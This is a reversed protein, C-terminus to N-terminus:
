QLVLYGGRPHLIPVSAPRAASPAVHRATCPVFSLVRRRRFLLVVPPSVVGVKFATNGAAKEQAAKAKMDLPVATTKPMTTVM